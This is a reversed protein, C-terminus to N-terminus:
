CQEATNLKWKEWYRKLTTITGYVRKGDDKVFSMATLIKGEAGEYYTLESMRREFEVRWLEYNVKSKDSTAKGGADQTQKIGRGRAVNVGHDLQVQGRQLIKGLDIALCIVRGIGDSWENENVLEDTMRLILKAARLADHAEGPADVPLEMLLKTRQEHSQWDAESIYAPRDGLHPLTRLLCTKLYKGLRANLDMQRADNEVNHITMRGDIVIPVGKFNAEKGDESVLGAAVLEPTPPGPAELLVRGSADVGKLKWGTANIPTPEPYMPDPKKPTPKGKSASKKKAM